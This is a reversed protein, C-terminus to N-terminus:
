GEEWEVLVVRAGRSPWPWKAVVLSFIWTLIYTLYHRQELPSCHFLCTYHPPPCPRILDSGPFGVSQGTDGGPRPTREESQVHALGWFQLSPSVECVCQLEEDPRLEPIFSRDTCMHACCTPPCAPPPELELGVPRHGFCFLWMVRSQQPMWASSALMGTIASLDGLSVQGLVLHASSLASVTGWFSLGHAPLGSDVVVSSGPM